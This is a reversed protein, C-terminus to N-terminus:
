LIESRGRLRPVKRVYKIRGGSIKDLERRHLRWPINVGEYWKQVTEKDCGIIHMIETLSKNEQRVWEAFTLKVQAQQRTISVDDEKDEM